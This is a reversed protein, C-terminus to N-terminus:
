KQKSKVKLIYVCENGRRRATRLENLTYSRNKLHM